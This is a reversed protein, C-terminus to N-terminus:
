EMGKINVLSIISYMPDSLQKVEFTERVINKRKVKQNVSFAISIAFIGNTLNWYHFSFICDLPICGNMM